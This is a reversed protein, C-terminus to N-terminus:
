RLLARGKKGVHEGGEAQLIEEIVIAVEYLVNAV